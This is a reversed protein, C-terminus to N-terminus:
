KNNFNLQVTDEEDYILIEVNKVMTHQIINNIAEQIIRLLAIQTDIHINKLDSNYIRITKNNMEVLVSGNM